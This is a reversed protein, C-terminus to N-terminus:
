ETSKYNLGDTQIPTIRSYPTLYSEENKLTYITLMKFVLWQVPKGKRMIVKRTSKHIVQGYTLPNIEPQRNQDKLEHAM